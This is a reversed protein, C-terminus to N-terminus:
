QLKTKTELMTLVEFSHLRAIGPAINTTQVLLNKRTIGLFPWKQAPQADETEKNQQQKPLDSKKLEQQAQVM